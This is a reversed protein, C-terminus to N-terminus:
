PQKEKGKEDLKKWEYFGDTVILCRQGRKWAARFAPKTTFEESRANFTSYSVKKDKAWHPLLGWRMMKPVRTGDVSRISMSPSARLSAVCEPLQDFPMAKHHGRGLKSRAPLLTSLHGRWRAPNEGKRFGQANAADFVREIRGRLRNATEPTLSWIPRLIKLVDETSVVDVPLRRIPAAYDRLTMEWQDVHKQNKWSPRMSEILDDAVQGFTPVERQKQRHETPNLGDALLARAEAAKERARALSVDRVAGLGM